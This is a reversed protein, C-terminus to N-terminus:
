LSEDKMSIINSAVSTITWNCGGAVRLLEYRNEGPFKKIVKWTYLNKKHRVYEGVKFATMAGPAVKKAEILYTVEVFNAHKSESTIEYKQVTAVFRSQSYIMRSGPVPVTVRKFGDPAQDCAFHRTVNKGNDSSILCTPEAVWFQVGHFVNRAHDALSIGSAGKLVRTLQITEGVSQSIRLADDRSVVLPKM